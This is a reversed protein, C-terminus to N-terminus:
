KECAIHDHDRDMSAAVQRYITPRFAGKATAGRRIWWSRVHHQDSIGHKYVKNLATCNAFPAAHVGAAEAPATVMGTALLGAVGVAALARKISNHDM